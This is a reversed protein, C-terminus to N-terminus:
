KNLQQKIDKVEILLQDLRERLANREARAKGEEEDNSADVIVAIFLNLIVFTSILIFFVFFIWAYPFVEMIPRAVSDSWGDGTMVQFLTYLSLGLNGFTDPFDKAFLNTALVGSVYFILGMVASVSGLGPIAALLGSVVKHLSPVKTALRLVRLVRLARLVAFPGSAPVLAIAIVIFDFVAWGDKFFALGRALLLAIIEIVFIGLIVEDAVRLYSSYHERVYDSTELGMMVANVIILTILVAQVQPHSVAAEIKQRWPSQTTQHTTM